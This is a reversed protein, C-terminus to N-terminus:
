RSAKINNQVICATAPFPFDPTVTAVIVLDLEDATIGAMQLAREAAQTAFISTYEDHSAIHRETIGTRTTIWEDTTDVMRELDANSLIKDPVACGTGLIAARLMREGM